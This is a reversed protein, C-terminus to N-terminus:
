ATVFRSSLLFETPVGAAAFLGACGLIALLPGGFARLRRRPPGSRYLYVPLFLASLAVIGINDLGAPPQQGGAM